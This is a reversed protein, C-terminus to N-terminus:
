GLHRVRRSQIGHDKDFSARESMLAADAAIRPTPRNASAKQACLVEVLAKKGALNIGAADKGSAAIAADYIADASDMAVTIEGLLPAVAREADRIDRLVKMTDATADKRARAIAADMAPRDITPMTKDDGNVKKDEEEKKLRAAKEEDSEGEDAAPDGALGDLDSMDDDAMGKAKLLEKVKNLDVMKGESGGEAPAAAAPEAPPAASPEAEDMEPPEGQAQSEIMDLLRMAVHDPGVGGDAKAEPSLMPEAADKAGKWILAKQAKFTKATVGKLAPALDLKADMALKPALYGTLAAQVRLATRSLVTKAAMAPEETKPPNPDITSLAADGVVVDPGARGKKVLAVHNGKIGRMVGDYPEGKFTGPTMDPRYKYGSSLEKQRESNVADIGERAWIVLDNDLYPDNWTANTGTAGVILDPQHDDADVPEHKILLQNGNFTSAAKELEEPDRLMQYIRSPDLGLAQWGPIEEGKYPNIGAKSIHASAVHMRGADDMSRISAEDLAVGDTVVRYGKEEAWNENLPAHAEPGFILPGGFPKVTSLDKGGADYTITVHPHFGDHDWSAGADIARQWRDKFPVSGFRLVVAGKDGLPQISRNGDDPMVIEGGEPELALPTRSYVITTHLEDTPTLNAFGQETAWATFAEACSATLKRSVYLGPGDSDGVFEKGVSQPVGGYGGKTHAAADMLREQAPSVAPM